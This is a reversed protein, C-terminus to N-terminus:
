PTYRYLESPVFKQDQFSFFFILIAYWVYEDLQASSYTHEYEGRSKLSILGAPRWSLQAMLLQLSQDGFSINLASHAVRSWM